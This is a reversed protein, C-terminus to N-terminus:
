HGSKGHCDKCHGYFKLQHDTIQFDANRSIFSELTELLDDEVERVRGCSLCILHHHHHPVDSEAMEYRSRGDGFDIKQLFDLESFLELTRYITALGIEPARTKVLQHAEEASLHRDPNDIFAQLVTLRQPTLKYQKERFKRRVDNLSVTLGNM